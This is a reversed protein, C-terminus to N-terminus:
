QLCFAKSSNLSPFSFHYLSASFVVLNTASLNLNFFSKLGSSSSVTEMILCSISSDSKRLNSLNLLHDFSLRSPNDATAIETAPINFVMIIPALFANFDPAFATPSKPFASTFIPLFKPTNIEDKNFKIPDMNAHPAFPIVKRSFFTHIRVRAIM